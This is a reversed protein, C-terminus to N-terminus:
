QCFYRRGDQGFFYTGPQCTYGNNYYVNGYPAYDYAYDDGYYGDDYFGYGLGSGIFVGTAFRPGFRHHFGRGHFNGRQIAANANAFSTGSGAFRAGHNFGGSAVRAGGFSGGGFRAGGGFGGGHFGGGGFGGGHFGGGGGM